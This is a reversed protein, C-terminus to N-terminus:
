YKPFVLRTEGAYFETTHGRTSIVSELQEFKNTQEEFKNVSLTMFYSTKFSM